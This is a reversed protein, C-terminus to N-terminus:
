GLSKWPRLVASLMLRVNDRARRDAWEMGFITISFSILSVVVAGKAGWAPILVLNLAVNCAVGVLATILVFRSMGETSLFMGRAVGIGSLFIRAAMLPLLAGAARYADGFLWVLAFSGFVAFPVIVLLSLLTMLRYLGHLRRRYLVANDRRARALEPAAVAHVIVPFCTAVMVMRLAAAYHGLEEETSLAGMLVQDGYAQAQIALVALMLPMSEKLFARARGVSVKWYKYGASGSRSVWALGAAGLMMEGASALAFTWLPAEAWILLARLGASGMLAILRNVAVVRIRGDSQLHREVVDWSQAVLALGAVPLLTMYEIGNRKGAAAMAVCLLWAASSAVFRLMFGTALIEGAAKPHTALERVLIGNLGLSAAGGVVAVFALAASLMGFNEPGLYRAVWAGILLGVVVRVGQEMGLWAGGALMRNVTERSRLRKLIMAVAGCGPIKSRRPVYTEPSEHNEAAMATIGVVCAAIHVALTFAASRRRASRM